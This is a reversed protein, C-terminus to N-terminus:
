LATSATSNKCSPLRNIKLKIKLDNVINICDDSHLTKLTQYFICIVSHFRETSVLLEIAGLEEVLTITVVVEVVDCM